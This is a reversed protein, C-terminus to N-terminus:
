RAVQGHEAKGSEIRSQNADAHAMSVQIERRRVTKGKEKGEIEGKEGKFTTSLPPWRDGRSDGGNAASLSREM